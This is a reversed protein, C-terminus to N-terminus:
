FRFKQLAKLIDLQRIVCERLYFFSFFDLYYNSIRGGGGFFISCFLITRVVHTKTKIFYRSHIFHIYKMQVFNLVWILIVKLVWYATISLCCASRKQKMCYKYVDWLAGGNCYCRALITHQSTHKTNILHLTRWNESYLKQSKRM